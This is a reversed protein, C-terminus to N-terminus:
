TRNKNVKFMHVENELADISQENKETIAKVEQAANNIQLAGAAMENMSDALVRTLNDLKQMEEAVGEGGQLMERSGSQVEATVETITKIATLIERSGQEQEQMSSMLEHSMNKVQDSLNFILEFKEEASKASDSLGEIQVSLIKLTETISKGQASSEEALKRIEDAVVAFGKGAEGAHAAEIAANMALLNTQSAIHQIVNSAEILGGSEEAINQTVTVSNVITDRGDITAAALNQITEDTKGLTKTVSSINATMEEIASSSQAISEVQNEISGNLQKITRIIEEVTAATETVSAAQTLTQQKVSDINASIEYVASATQNMNTSLTHGLNTLLGSEMIIRNLLNATVAQFNNLANMLFGLEDRSIIDIKEETYDGQTMKETFNLIIQMRSASGNTQLYLDTLGLLIGICTLPLTKMLLVTKVSALQQLVIIPALAITITGTFSFFATLVSRIKLPMGKFDNHLPILHLWKEFNQIFFVYFFLAFLFCSGVSFMLVANFVDKNNYEAAFSTLIFPIAFSAIVPIVILLSEYKKISKLAKKYAAENTNYNVFIPIFHSYLFFAIFASTIFTIVFPLSLFLKKLTQPPVIDFILLSLPSVLQWSIVILLSFTFICIPPKSLQINNSEMTGGFNRHTYPPPATYVNKKNM